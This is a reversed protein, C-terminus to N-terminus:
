KEIRFTVNVETPEEDEWKVSQFSFDTIQIMFTDGVWFGQKRKEPKEKFLFLRGDSNRAAWATDHIEEHKREHTNPHLIKAVTEEAWSLIEKRTM